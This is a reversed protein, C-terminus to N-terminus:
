LGLGIASLTAGLRLDLQSRSSLIKGFASRTIGLIHLYKEQLLCAAREPALFSTAAPIKHEDETSISILIPWGSSVQFCCRPTLVEPEVTFPLSSITDRRLIM